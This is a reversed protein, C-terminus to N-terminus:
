IHILSLGLNPLAVRDRSAKGQSPLGLKGHSFDWSSLVATFLVYFFLFFYIWDQEPTIHILDGSDNGSRDFIM